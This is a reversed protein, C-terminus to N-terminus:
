PQATDVPHPCEVSERALAVAIEDVPRLITNGASDYTWKGAHNAYAETDNRAGYLAGCYPSVTYPIGLEDFDLAQASQTPDYKVRVTFHEYKSALIYDENLMAQTEYAEREEVAAIRRKCYQRTHGYYSCYKCARPQIMGGMPGGTYGLVLTIERMIFGARIWQDDRLMALAERLEGVEKRDKKNPRYGNARGM